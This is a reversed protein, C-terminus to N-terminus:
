VKLRIIINESEELSQSMKDKSDSDEEEYKQLKEKQKLNNKRLKKIERLACMIEEEIDVEGDTEGNEEEKSDMM